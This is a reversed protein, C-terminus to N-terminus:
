VTVPEVQQEAGSGAAPGADARGSASGVACRAPRWPTTCRRGAGPATALRGARRAHTGAVLARDAAARDEPLFHVGAPRVYGEVMGVIDSGSWGLSARMRNVVGRDGTRRRDPRPAGGARPGAAGPRGPRRFRGRRGRRRDRAGDLTLQNRAPRTGSRARRRGRPQLRHRGRRRGGGAGARSRTRSCARGSRSGATPGRCGPSCRSTSPRHRAAGRSGSRGAAGRQGTPRGRAPRVGRRARRPAPRRRGGYPDADVLLTRVRRRALEAALGAALTTRGPAGGPGWVAIVRGGPLAEAPRAAGVDDFAAAEDPAIAPQEAEVSTVAAPLSDLDTEDVLVQIGIRSARLRAAEAPAGGPVVAVPRVGHRRLHDTAALDLGPADLGLVAVGAQGATAAALLDDVDVCRKLM